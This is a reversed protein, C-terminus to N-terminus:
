LINVDVVRKTVAVGGLIGTGNEINSFIQIPEMFPNDDSNNEANRTKLYLFYEYSLQQIEIHYVVRDPITYYYESEEYQPLLKVEKFIRDNFTLNYTSSNFLVDTFINYGNSQEEIGFFDESSDTNFVADTFNSLYLQQTNESYHEVKLVVIRYYNKEKGNDTIPLKFKVDQYVAVGIDVPGNYDWQQITSESYNKETTIEGAQPKAPITAVASVTPFGPITAKLEVRDGTQFIHDSTYNGNGIYKMQETHEGSTLVVDADEISPFSRSSDLFFRSKSLNISFTTDTMLIGNLTVIPETKTRNFEVEKECSIMLLISVFFPIYKTKM